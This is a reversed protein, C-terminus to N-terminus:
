VCVTRQKYEKGNHNIGPSQICSGTAYLLVKNNIWELHLLKCRGVGFEWDMRSGWRKGKVIVLRIERDVLRNKNQPYFFQQKTWKQWIKLNWMYIINDKELKSWKTHDDRTADMNSCIVNNWRKKHSLLIEDWVCVCVCVCTYVVDEKGIWRDISM